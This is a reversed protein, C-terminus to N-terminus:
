HLQEQIKEIAGGHRVTAGNRKSRISPLPTPLRLERFLLLVYDGISVTFSMILDTAWIPINDLSL